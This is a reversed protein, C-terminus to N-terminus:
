AGCEDDDDDIEIVDSSSRSTPPPPMLSARPMAGGVVPRKRPVAETGQAPPKPSVGMKRQLSELKMKNTRMKIAWSMKLSEFKADRAM